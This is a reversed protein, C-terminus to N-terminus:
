EFCQMRTKSVQYCRKPRYAPVPQRPKSSSGWSGTRPAAAPTGAHRKQRMHDDYSQRMRTLTRRQADNAARWATDFIGPNAELVAVAPGFRSDSPSSNWYFRDMVYPLDGPVSSAMATRLANDWNRGDALRQAQTKQVAAPASTRPPSSRTPAAPASAAMIIPRGSRDFTQIKGNHLLLFQQYGQTHFVLGDRCSLVLRGQNDYVCSQRDRRLVFLGGQPRGGMTFLPAAIERGDRNVLGINGGLETIILGHARSDPYREVALYARDFRPAIMVMGDGSRIGAKGGEMFISACASPACAPVAPVSALATPVSGLAMIAAFLTM